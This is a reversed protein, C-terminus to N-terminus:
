SNDENWWRDVEKRIKENNKAIEEMIKLTEQGGHRRYYVLLEPVYAFEFKKSAMLVWKLDEGFRLKEDIRIIEFCKKPIFLCNFNTFMDNRYAWSWVAVIFDERNDFSPPVFRGTIIGRENINYYGCYLIKEPYKKSYNEMIEIFNSHYVDDHSLFCVYDGTSEDVGRQRTYGIGMNTKNRVYKFHEPIIDKIDLPSCDDVIIVEDAKRTQNVVSEIACKLYVKDQESDIYAPIIVSIRM